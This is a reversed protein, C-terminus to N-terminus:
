TGGEEGELTSLRSSIYLPECRTLYRPAPDCVGYSKTRSAGCRGTSTESTRGCKLARLWGSSWRREISTDLSPGSGILALTTLSRKCRILENPISVM